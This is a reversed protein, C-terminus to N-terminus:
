ATRTKFCTSCFENSHQGDTRWEGGCRCKADASDSPQSANDLITKCFSIAEKADGQAQHHKMEMSGELSKIPDILMKKVSEIYPNYM